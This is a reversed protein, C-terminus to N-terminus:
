NASYGANGLCAGVQYISYSTNFRSNVWSCLDDFYIYGNRSYLSNARAILAASHDSKMPNRASRRRSGPTASSTARSNSSTRISGM